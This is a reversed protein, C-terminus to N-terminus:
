SIAKLPTGAPLLALQDRRRLFLAEEPFDRWRLVMLEDPKAECVICEFWGDSPAGSTALVLSGERIIPWDTPVGSAEVEPSSTLNSPALKAAGAGAKAGKDGSGAQPAKVPKLSKEPKPGLKPKPPASPMAIGGLAALREFIPRAVFPVFAKGSKGFLRGPTLRDALDGCEPSALPLIHMGMLAAAKTAREADAASFFSAHPKGLNDLGYLAVPLRPPNASEAATSVNM